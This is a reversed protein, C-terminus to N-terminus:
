IAYGPRRMAAYQTTEGVMHWGDPTRAAIVQVKLIEFGAKGTEVDAVHESQRFAIVVMACAAPDSAEKNVANMAERLNERGVLDAFRRAQQETDCVVGTGIKVGSKGVSQLAADQGAAAGAFGLLLSSVLAIHHLKRM